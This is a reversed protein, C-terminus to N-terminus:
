AMQVQLLQASYFPACADGPRLFLDVDRTVTVRRVRVGRAGGDGPGAAAGAGAGGSPRAGTSIGGAGTGAGAGARRGPRASPPAPTTLPGDHHPLREEYVVLTRSALPGLLQVAAVEKLEQLRAPASSAAAPDAPAGGCELPADQHRQPWRRSRATPVRRSFADHAARRLLAAVEAFCCSTMSSARM